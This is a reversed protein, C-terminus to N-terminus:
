NEEQKTLAVIQDPSLRLLTKITALVQRKGHNILIKDPDIENFDYWGCVGELFVIIEKGQPTDLSAKLNSQLAKVEDINLLDIM